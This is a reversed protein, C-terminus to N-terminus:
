CGNDNNYHNQSIVAAMAMRIAIMIALLMVLVKMEDDGHYHM